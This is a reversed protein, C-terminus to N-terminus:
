IVQILGFIVGFPMKIDLYHISYRSSIVFIDLFRWIGWSELSLFVLRPSSLRTLSFLPSPITLYIQLDINRIDTASTTRKEWLSAFALKSFKPICDSFFQSSNEKWDIFTRHHRSSSCWPTTSFCWLWTVCERDVFKKVKVKSPSSCLLYNRNM